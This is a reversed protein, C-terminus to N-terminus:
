KIYWKQGTPDYLFQYHTGKVATLVTAINGSTVTQWAADAIVFVPRVAGQPPATINKITALGTVHQIDYPLSITPASAVSAGSSLSQANVVAYSWQILEGRLDTDYQSADAPLEPLYLQQLSRGAM